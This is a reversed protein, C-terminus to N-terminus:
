LDSFFPSLLLRFGVYWGHYSPHYWHRVACRVDATVGNFSGGRLVRLHPSSLDERGDQAVHPYSYSPKDWDGGWLSRTWEWVNGSMEECGYPSAGTPFCGLSSPDGIETESFNMRNPDAGEGWPYSRAPAPNGALDGPGPLRQIPGIRPSEPIEIGGRAAKEWEAESPLSVKWNAEIWGNKRWRLTLWDCFALAENWSVWVVPASVSGRLSDPDEPQRESDRLYEQFQAVTVPYRAIFYDYPITNQHLPKEEDRGDSGMWFPGAPVRCFEVADVKMVEPRPDGLEALVRGAEARRRPEVKDNRMTQLLAEIVRSRLPRTVGAAGVDVVARGALTVALGPPGPAQDLLGALVSSAAEDRKQVIGMYGVTLLSVEYWAPEEIHQALAEVVPGVEQQGKQALAVAALYEQFTLHIFGYQRGGRDLLLAAHDRVDALFLRTSEQPKPHGLGQFIAELKQRLDWEKVLGRGPSTEQMWLALPALSKLTEVDDVERAARGDLSRALNWHRLLTKVYTEYLEVRREPLDVGQRKMLALITLLLPNAALDRVGASRRVADLLGAKEREADIEATRTEGSAARELASTWKEIFAEIEEEEFDVLTAEALDPAELRAERYGIIRSTVTLKNGAKKHFCYFDKVREVIRHRQGLERVEDLGDLLLLARGQRLATELVEGLALDIGRESYYRPIFAQLSIEGQTLADAYASLPVLVPVREGLGVAEGQGTALTLALFKLFTTKGAGPDGLLVVGGHSQLLGLVSQPESLRQGVASVEEEMLMKGAVRYREWTEGEPTEVRATLPIYMELLPLRLPVRDSVGMGRLDLFRHREVLHELYLRTVAQVNQSPRGQGLWRLVQAADVPGVGTNIIVVNGHVDRGVAVERAAVAGQAAVVAEGQAQIFALHPRAAEYLASLEDALAPDTALLKKLQLRLAGRADSDDPLQALDKAAAAIPRKGRLRKWIEKVQESAGAGVQKGIEEVAKGAVKKGGALLNPLSQALLITLAEALLTPDAM